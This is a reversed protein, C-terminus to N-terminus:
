NCILIWNRLKRARPKRELSINVSQVECNKFPSDMHSVRNFCHEHNPGYFHQLCRVNNKNVIKNFFENVYKIPFACVASRNMPEASDPKSQAFVGYLIDDNLSAGIQKALNAGPKSVYAAQLINFVEERTSRKRRKETVICELPMEM